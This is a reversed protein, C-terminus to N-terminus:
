AEGTAIPRSPDEIWGSWSGPYLVGEERGALKLALLNHAATVGSGCYCVVPDTLVAFRSALEAPSRFTGDPNLNDNFPLCVAGPIHGAIPDIPEDDGKFRAEARADVLNQQGIGTQVEDASLQRTLAPRRTFSGNRTPEDGRVLADTWAALGGDLLAVADHGLWRICWWARAAMAGGVDDYLVIQSSDSAGLAGLRATLRDPDPLPHRGGAGPAGALDRDLDLHQATPLHGALWQERGWYPEGLKARCDFVALQSSPDGFRGALREALQAATILYPSM